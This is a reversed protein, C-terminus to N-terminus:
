DNLILSKYITAWIQGLRFRIASQNRPASRKAVAAYPRNGERWMTVSEEDAGQTSWLDHTGISEQLECLQLRLAACRVRPLVSSARAISKAAMNVKARRETVTACGAVASRGSDKSSAPTRAATEFRMSPRM